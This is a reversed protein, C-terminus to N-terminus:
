KKRKYIITFTPEKSDGIFQAFHMNDEDPVRFVGRCPLMKGEPGPVAGAMLFTKKEEDYTGETTVPSASMSDFWVSVYKKKRADYTNMARGYFKPGGDEGVMTGVQWMGGLEMKYTIAGKLEVGGANTTTLWTGEQKKLREHEPGPTAPEQAWAPILLSAVVIGTIM